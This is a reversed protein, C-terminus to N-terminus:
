GSIKTWIQINPHLPQNDSNVTIRINDRDIYTVTTMKEIEHTANNYCTVHPYYTDLNHNINYYWDINNGTNIWDNETILIEYSRMMNIYLEHMDKNSLVKNRLPDVSNLDVEQLGHPPGASVNYNQITSEVHQSWEWGLDNSIIKNRINDTQTVDVYELGHPNSLEVRSAEHSNWKCVLADSVLKNLETSIAGSSSASACSSLNAPFAPESMPLINVYDIMGHTVGIRKWDIKFKQDHRYGHTETIDGIWFEYYGNELTQIQPGGTFNTDSCTNYSSYEDLYICALTDSGALKVTIDANEIPEGAENVIFGWFHYRAM